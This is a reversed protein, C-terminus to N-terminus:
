TQRAFPQYPRGGAEYFKEFFEVYHLRLSAILPSMIGLTFNVAHLLLALAVGLAVPHVATALQNAVDALM